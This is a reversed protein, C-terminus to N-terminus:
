QGGGNMPYVLSLSYGSGNAIVSTILAFSVPACRAKPAAGGSRAMASSSPAANLFEREVIVSGGPASPLCDSVGGGPANPLCAESLLWLRQRDSFHRSRSLHAVLRPAAGGSRAGCTCCSLVIPSSSTTKARRGGADAAGCGCAMGGGSAFIVQVTLSDASGGSASRQLALDSAARSRSWM